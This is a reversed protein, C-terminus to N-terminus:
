IPWESPPRAPTLRTNFASDGGNGARITDSFARAPAGVARRHARFALDLAEPSEASASWSCCCTMSSAPELRPGYRIAEITHAKGNRM